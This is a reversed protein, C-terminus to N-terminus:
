HPNSVSAALARLRFLKGDTVQRIEQLLSNGGSDYKPFRSHITDSEDVTYFSNPGYCGDGLRRTSDFNLFLLHRSGIPLEQTGEGGVTIKVGDVIATGGEDPTLFEDPGLPLMSKPALAFELQWDENRQPPLERTQRTLREVIKYKRWTLIRFEYPVAKSELLSAVLVASDMLAVQLPEQEDAYLPTGGPLRIESRGESRAKQARWALSGRAPENEPTSQGAWMNFSAFSLSIALALRLSKQLSVKDGSCEISSLGLFGFQGKFQLKL